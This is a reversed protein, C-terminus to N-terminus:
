FRFSIGLLINHMSLDTKVNRAVNDSNGISGFFQSIVDQDVDVRYFAYRYESFLAVRRSLQIAMGVPLQFGVASGISSTGSIGDTPPGLDAQAYTYLSISPGIGIYPQLRGQPIEEDVFLPLRFMAMPTIPQIDFKTNKGRAHLSSFDGGFGLWPLNKLWYGGRVGYTEDGKFRVDGSTTAINSSIKVTATDTFSAGAYLDFYGEAFVPVSASVVVYAFVGTFFKRV